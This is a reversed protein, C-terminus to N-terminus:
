DESETLAGEIKAAATKATKDSITHLYIDATTSPKSHGLRKSVTILDVDNAFAHSAMTHRYGHVPQLGTKVIKASRLLSRLKSTLADPDMAWGGLEPFLLLPDRQYGVGFAMATEAIFAKHRRLRDLLAPPITVLRRSSATKTKERIVVEKGEPTRVALVARQVLVEGTAFNIDDIALGLIESRRLGTLGLMDVLVDLGPYGAKRSFGRVATFEARTMATAPSKEPQPPTAKATPVIPILNWKEAQRLGARFVAHM